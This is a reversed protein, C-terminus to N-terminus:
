KALRQIEEATLARDYIRLEDYTGPAYMAINSPHTGLTAPFGDLRPTTFPKRNTIVPKGNVYLIREGSKWTLALHTWEGKKLPSHVSGLNIEPCM